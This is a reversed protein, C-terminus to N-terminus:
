GNYFITQLINFIKDGIWYGFGLIFPYAIFLWILDLVGLNKFTAPIDQNLLTLFDYWTKFGLKIVIANAVIATVLISLGILYLRFM